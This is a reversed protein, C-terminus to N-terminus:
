MAKVKELEIEFIRAADAEGDHFREWFQKELWAEPALQFLGDSTWRAIWSRALASSVIEFADLSFLAVQGTDAVLRVLWLGNRELLVTLVDYEKGVTLWPSATRQSGDPGLLKICRVRM